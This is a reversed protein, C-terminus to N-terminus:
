VKDIGNVPGEASDVSGDGKKDYLVAANFLYQNIRASLANDEPSVYRTMLRGDPARLIVRCRVDGVTTRVVVQARCHSYVKILPIIQM